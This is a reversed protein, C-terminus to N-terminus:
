EVLGKLHEMWGAATIRHPFIESQHYVLYVTKFITDFIRNPPLRVLREVLPVPLPLKAAVAFLRQLNEVRRKDSPDAFRLHSRDYYSFDLGDFDGDFWGDREAQEGLRTGPYPQYMMALSYHPRARRNLALTDLDHALGTGPLGLMNNALIRIGARRLLRCGRVITDDSMARGLQQARVSERGAEIGVNVSHCGAERLLRVREESLLDLRLHCYFPLRVRDRMLRAFRALWSRALPFISERFALFETPYRGTVQEIEEVLNEPSRTRPRRYCGDYLQDMSRNFCYTCAYPCGRSALFSRVTYGRIKPSLSYYVERSPFPLRDLDEVLPALPGCRMEDGDEVHFGPTAQPRGTAALRECFEAFALDCEGRAIADIGEEALYDPFFTPHPGGFVSVFSLQEKLRRNLEAYLRHAGTTVSYAVIGPAFRRLDPVLTESDADFLRCSYGRAELHPVLSMVGFPEISEPEAVLFAVNPL